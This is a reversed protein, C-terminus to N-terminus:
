SLIKVNKQNIRLSEAAIGKLVHKIKVGVELAISDDDATSSQKTM